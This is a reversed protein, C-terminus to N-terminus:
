IKQASKVRTMTQNRRHDFYDELEAEIRDNENLSYQSVINAPIICSDAGNNPRFFAFGKQYNFNFVVGLVLNSDTIQIETTSEWNEQKPNGDVYIKFWTLVDMLQYVLSTVLYSNQVIRIHQDIASRHSGAQTYILLGRILNSVEAPLHTEDLHKFGKEEFYNGDRDKGALFKSSENLAIGSQIFEAPLLKYKNFAVFLDEILKRITNFHDNTNGSDEIKLLSLLDQGASEGIYRETCVDFARKHKFRLQTDEQKDAAAKIDVFLQEIDNDDAKKYVKLFAKTFQRDDYAEAQGTLVFIEFKKPLQLIREKARHVNDTDESGAIDSDSELFKADLLVGDYFTYNRELEDIGDLSKFPVLNIGNRKARGKTGTLTEHEDDIWLVNYEM